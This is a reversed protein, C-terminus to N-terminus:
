NSNDFSPLEHPSPNWIPILFGERPCFTRAPQPRPPLLGPLVEQLFYYRVYRSLHALERHPPPAQVLAQLHPTLLTEQQLRSSRDLRSKLAPQHGGTSLVVPVSPPRGAIRLCPGAPCSQNIQCQPCEMPATAKPSTARSLFHTSALCIPHIPSCHPSPTPAETGERGGQVDKGQPLRGPLFHHLHTPAQSALESPAQPIPQTHPLPAPNPARGGWRTPYVKGPYLDGWKSAPNPMTAWKHRWFAGEARKCGSPRNELRPSNLVMALSQPALHTYTQLGAKNETPQIKAM